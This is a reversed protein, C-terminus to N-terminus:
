NAENAKLSTTTAVAKFLELGKLAGSEALVPALLQHLKSQGYLMLLMKFINTLLTAKDRLWRLSRLTQRKTITQM